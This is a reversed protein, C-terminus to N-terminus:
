KIEKETQLIFKKILFEMEMPELRRSLHLLPINLENCKNIIRELVLKTRYNFTKGQPLDSKFMIGAIKANKLTLTAPILWNERKDQATPNINGIKTYCIGIKDLVNWLRNDDATPYNRRQDESYRM